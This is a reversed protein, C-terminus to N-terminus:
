VRTALQEHAVEAAIAIGDPPPLRYDVLAVDPTLARILDLAEPGTDAEGVVDFGAATLARAVGERYLPHDDAIAVRIAEAPDDMEGMTLVFSRRLLSALPFGGSRVPRDARSSATSFPRSRRRAARQPSSRWM